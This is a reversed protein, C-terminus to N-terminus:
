GGVVLGADRLQDVFAAVDSAVREREVDPYRAAVGDVLGGQEAGDALLEWVVSGVRNLTLLESGDPRVVM